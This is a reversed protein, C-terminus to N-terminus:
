TLWLRTNIQNPLKSVQAIIVADAWGTPVEMSAANGEIVQVRPLRKAELTARMAKLPEVAKIEYQESRSSLIQTFKGTGAALDVIKAGEQNAVGVKDLLDAVAEPIYSPRFSDYAPGDTFGTAADQLFESM